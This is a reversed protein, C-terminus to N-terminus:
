LFVMWISIRLVAGRRLFLVRLSLCIFIVVAYFFIEFPIGIDSDEREYHIAFHCPPTPSYGDSNTDFVRAFIGLRM